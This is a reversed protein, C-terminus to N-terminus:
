SRATDPRPRRKIYRDTTAMVTAQQAMMPHAAPALAEGDVTLYRPLVPLPMGTVSTIL